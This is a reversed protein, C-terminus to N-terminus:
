LNARARRDDRRAAAISQFCHALSIPARRQPLFPAREGMAVPGLRFPWLSIMFISRKPGSRARRLMHRRTHGFTVRAEACRLALSNTPRILVHTLTTGNAQVTRTTEQISTRTRRKPQQSALEM